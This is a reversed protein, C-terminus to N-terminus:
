IKILSGNINQKMLRMKSNIESVTEKLLELHDPFITPQNKVSDVFMDLLIMFDNSTFKVIMDHFWLWSKTSLIKFVLFIKDNLETNPIGKYVTHNKVVFLFLAM